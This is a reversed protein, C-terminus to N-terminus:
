LMCQLSLSCKKFLKINNAKKQNEGKVFLPKYIENPSLSALTKYMFDYIQRNLNKQKQIILLLQEHPLLIYTKGNKKYDFYYHLEKHQEPYLRIIAKWRGPHNRASFIHHKQQHHWFTHPQCFVHKKINDNPKIYSGIIKTCFPKITELIKEVLCVFSPNRVITHIKYITYFHDLFYPSTFLSM